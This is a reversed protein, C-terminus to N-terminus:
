DASVHGRVAGRRHVGSRAGRAGAAIGRSIACLARSVMEPGQNQQARPEAPRDSRWFYEHRDPRVRVPAGRRVGHEGPLVRAGDVLLDAALYDDRLFVLEVFLPSDVGGVVASPAAPAGM